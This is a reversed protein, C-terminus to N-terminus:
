RDLLRELIQVANLAAGKRLNDAVVWMCIGGPNGIDERIRGVFVPDKGSADLPTPYIGEAFNDMLAIGAAGKLAERVEEPTVARDFEIALSESHGNAVPVRVATPTVRISEDEMIKRTEFVMKLEEEQYGSELDRSWEMLVNGALQKGIENTPMAYKKLLAQNQASLESLASHGAGSIAQYTCVVVRQIKALKRLPELAVVMQITSCNPNAIIGKPVSDLAHANVEPVVLPVADDRRFASSNDIVITGRAAAEPALTKSPGSGASFLAYPIGEFADPEALRVEHEAGGIDVSTGASRVSAMPVLEVRQGLRESAISLMESGVAGTAGVVAVKIPM